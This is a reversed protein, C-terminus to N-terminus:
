KQTVRYSKHQSKYNVLLWALYCIFLLYTINLYSLKLQMVKLLTQISPTM